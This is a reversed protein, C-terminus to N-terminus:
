ESSSFIMEPHLSAEKQLWECDLAQGRPYTDRRCCSKQRTALEKYVIFCRSIGQHSGKTLYSTLPKQFDLYFFDKTPKKDAHKDGLLM